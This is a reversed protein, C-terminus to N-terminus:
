PPKPGNEIEKKPPLAPPSGVDPTGPLRPQTRLYLEHLIFAIGNIM